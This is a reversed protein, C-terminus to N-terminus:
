KYHRQGGMGGKGVWGLWGQVGDLLVGQVTDVLVGRNMCDFLPWIPRQYSRGLRGGSVVLAFFFSGM